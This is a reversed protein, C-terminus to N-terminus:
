SKDVVGVTILPIFIRKLISNRLKNHSSTGSGQLTIPNRAKRAKSGIEMFVGISLSIPLNQYDGGFGRLARLQGMLRM